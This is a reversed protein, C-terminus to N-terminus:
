NVSWGSSGALTCLEGSMFYDRGRIGTELNYWTESVITSKLDMWAVAFPIIENQKGPPTTRIGVRLCRKAQREHAIVLRPGAWPIM